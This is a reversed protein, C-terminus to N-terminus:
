VTPADSMQWPSEYLNSTDHGLSRITIIMDDQERAECWPNDGARRVKPTRRSLGDGACRDSSQTSRPEPVMSSVAYMRLHGHLLEARLVCQVEMVEMRFGVHFAQTTIAGSENVALSECTLISTDQPSDVSCTCRMVEHCLTAM